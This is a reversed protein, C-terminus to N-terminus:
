KSGFYVDVNMGVILPGPENLDIMVENVSFDTLNRSGPSNLRAARILPASATV